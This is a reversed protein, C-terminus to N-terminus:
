VHMLEIDIKLLHSMTFRTEYKWRIKNLPDFDVALHTSYRKHIDVVMPLMRRERKRERKNVNDFGFVWFFHLFSLPDNQISHMSSLAGLINLTQKIKIKHM